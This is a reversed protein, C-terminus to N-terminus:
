VTTPNAKNADLAYKQMAQAVVSAEVAGTDALAKLAAVVIWNRDVEFFHRLKPRTDSRGFGDTGLVAYHQPVFARLGDAWSKMYDTAAIVPGAADALQQTVYATKAPAEPHMRNWREVAVGDRRLENISTLSWVDADIGYDERLMAAAARVDRLISGCGMLQVVTAVDAAAREVQYMGRVIGDACDAPMEPQVYNENM